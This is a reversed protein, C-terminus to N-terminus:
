IDRRHLRIPSRHCPAYRSSLGPHAVYWFQHHNHRDGAAAGGVARSNSRDIGAMIVFAVGAYCAMGFLQLIEGIFTTIETVDGGLRTITEGPSYPLARAGPLQLIRQFLNKRLLAGSYNQVIQDLWASVYIVSVRLVGSAVLLVLFWWLTPTIRANDTLLNFCQRIIWGPLLFALQRPIQMLLDIGFLAPKFRAVRWLAQWGTM